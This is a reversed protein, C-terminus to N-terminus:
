IGLDRLQLRGLQSPALTSREAPRSISTCGAIIDCLIGSSCSTGVYSIPVQMWICRSARPLGCTRSPRGSAPDAGTLHGTICSDPNAGPTSRTRHLMLWTVGSGHGRHLDRTPPTGQGFLFARRQHELERGQAGAPTMVRPQRIRNQRRAEVLAGHAPIVADFVSPIM